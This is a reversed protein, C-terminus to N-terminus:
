SPDTNKNHPNHATALDGVQNNLALRLNRLGYMAGAMPQTELWVANYHGGEVLVDFGQAIELTNGAECVEAHTFLTQLATDSTTFSVSTPPLPGYLPQAAFNCDLWPASANIGTSCPPAHLALGLALLVM